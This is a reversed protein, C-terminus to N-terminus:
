EDKVGLYRNITRTNWKKLIRSRRAEPTEAFLIKELNKSFNLVMQHIAAKMPNQLNCKPYHSFAGETVEQQCYQCKHSM